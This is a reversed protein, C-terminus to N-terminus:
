NVEVLRIARTPCPAICAGCGSCSAAHVVPLSQGMGQHLIRLAHQGCTEVCRRCDIGQWALCTEHVVPKLRWPAASRRNLARPACATVCDGCFSCEGRDFDVCPYGGDGTVLIGTPCAGVCAGCRTCTDIFEARPGSWPPLFSAPQSRFNGRLFERRDTSHSVPYEGKL